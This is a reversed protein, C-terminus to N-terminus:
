FLGFKKNAFTKKAAAQTAYSIQEEPHWTRMQSVFASGTIAHRKHLETMLKVDRILDENKPLHDKAHFFQLYNFILHVGEHVLLSCANSAKHKNLTKNILVTNDLHDKSYDYDPSYEGLCDSTLEQNIKIDPCTIQQGDTSFFDCFTTYFTKIFDLRDDDSLSQWNNYQEKWRESEQLKQHVAQQAYDFCQYLYESYTLSNCLKELAQIEKKFAETKVPNHVPHDDEENNHYLIIGESQAAYTCAMISRLIYNLAEIRQTQPLRSVDSIGSLKKLFAVHEPADRSKSEKEPIDISEVPKRKFM